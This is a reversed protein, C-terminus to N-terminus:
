VYFGIQLINRLLKCKTLKKKLKENKKKKLIFNLAWYMFVLATNIIGSLGVPFSSYSLQNSRTATLWLTSPEVGEELSKKKEKKTRTTHKNTKKTQLVLTTM